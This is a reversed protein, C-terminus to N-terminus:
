SMFLIFFLKLYVLFFNFNIIIINGEGEYVPHEKKVNVIALESGTM